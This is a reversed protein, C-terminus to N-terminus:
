ESERERERVRVRLEARTTLCAEAFSRLKPLMGAAGSAM